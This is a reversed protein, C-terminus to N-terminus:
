SDEVDRKVASFLMLAASYLVYHAEPIISSLVHSITIVSLSGILFIWRKGMSIVSVVFPFLSYFPSFITPSVHSFTLAHLIGSISTLTSSLLFVFFRYLIPSIGISRAAIEDDRVAMIKLGLESKSLLELGLYSLLFFTASIVYLDALPLSIAVRFGEEGGRGDIILYHSLQWFAVSALFTAFPFLRKGTFSLLILILFSLFSLPTIQPNLAFLYASIGFPISHGLSVWGGDKEMFHWAVAMLGLNIAMLAIFTPYYGLLPPILLPLTILIAKALM